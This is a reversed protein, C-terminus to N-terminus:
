KTLGKELINEIKTKLNNLANLTDTDFEFHNGDALIYLDNSFHHANDTLICQVRQPNHKIDYLEIEEYLM